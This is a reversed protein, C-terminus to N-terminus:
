TTRGVGRLRAAAEGRRTVQLKELINHVHNKVTPVEIFLRGAIQKNSLGEDILAVVERERPTLLAPAGSNHRASALTAVRRLLRAAVHPSCLLEGRAVAVITERLEDLSSDRTVYGAIGCEAWELVDDGAESLGLAVIGSGAFTESLLQAAEHGDSARLDLLVVDPRPEHRPVEKYSQAAWLVEIRDDRGLLAVLGERYFCVDAVVAVRVL